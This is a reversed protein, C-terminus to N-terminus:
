FNKSILKLSLVSSDSISLLGYDNSWYSYQVHNIGSFTLRLQTAPIIVTGGITDPMNQPGVLVNETVSTNSSEITQWTDGTKADTKWLLTAKSKSVGQGYAMLSTGNMYWYTVSTGQESSTDAIVYEGDSNIGSVTYTLTDVSYLTDVPTDTPYMTDVEVYKWSNGIKLFGPAYPSPNGSKTKCGITFLLSSLFTILIFRSIFLAM